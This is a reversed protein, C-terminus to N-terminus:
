YRSRVRISGRVELRCEKTRSADYWSRCGEADEERVNCGCGGYRGNVCGVDADGCGGGGEWGREDVREDIGVGVDVALVLRVVWAWRRAVFTRSEMESEVRSRGM